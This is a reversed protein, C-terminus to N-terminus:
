NNANPDVFYFIVASMEYNNWVSASRNRIVISRDNVHSVWANIAGDGYVVYPLQFNGLKVVVGAIKTGAPLDNNFDVNAVSPNSSSGSPLTITRVVHMTKIQELNTVRDSVEDIKDDIENYWDLGKRATAQPMATWGSVLGTAPNVTCYGLTAAGIGNTVNFDTNTSRDTPIGLRTIEETTLLSFYFPKVPNSLDCIALLYCTEQQSLEPIPITGDTVVGLRGGVVLRGSDVNLIGNVEHVQCGQIVGTSFISADMLEAMDASLLEKNPFIRIEISADAM